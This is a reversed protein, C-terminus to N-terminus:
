NSVKNVENVETLYKPLTVYPLYQVKAASTQRWLLFHEEEDM